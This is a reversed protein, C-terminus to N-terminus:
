IHILSLYIMSRVEGVSMVAENVLIAVKGTFHNPNNTGTVIKDNRIFNGPNLKDNVSSWLYVVEKPVLWKILADNVGFQQGLHFRMDIIIGKASQNKAIFDAISDSQMTNMNVYAINQLALKYDEVYNNDLLPTSPRKGRYPAANIIIEKEEGSRM